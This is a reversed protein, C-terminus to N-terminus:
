ARDPPGGYEFHMGDPILFDGGWRFGWREFVEVVRLDMAPTTDGYGNTPADIDIAAGYAHNSPPATSSRAVTRAAYCGSYVDILDDLGRDVLEQLAGRLAPLFARNCTVEGLIPVTETRIHADYWAPSMTLFAPDDSRPSASFEGFVQKMVVPPNVGSAVRVFRTGGPKVTRLPTGAPLLTRVADAFGEMALDETGLALLYRDHAIGLSAGLRRNVLLESWGVVGDPAVAGVEVATGDITITGGPGLRRLRASTAGLVAEGDRLAGIVRTRFADPLFPAYAAPDVAFADLPIEFPEEPTDVPEGDADHSARMWLTDGAVVVTAGLEDARGIRAAFDEPFGGPMWALWAPVPERSPDAPAASATATPSAAGAGDPGADGRPLLVFLLGLVLLTVFGAVGIRRRAIDARSAHQPSM